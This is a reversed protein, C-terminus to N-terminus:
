RTRGDFEDFAKHMISTIQHLARIAAQTAEYVAQFADVDPQLSWPGHDNVLHAVRGRLTNVDALTKLIPLLPSAPASVIDDVVIEYSDTM